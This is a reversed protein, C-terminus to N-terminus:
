GSSMVCAEDLVLGPSVGVEDGEAPVFSGWVELGWGCFVEEFVGEFSGADAVAEVEVAVGEHGPVDGKKQAFGGAFDPSWGFAGPAKYFEADGSSSRRGYRSPVGLAECSRLSRRRLVFSAAVWGCRGGLWASPPHGM